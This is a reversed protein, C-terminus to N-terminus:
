KGPAQIAGVTMRRTLSRGLFDIPGPDVGLARLDVAGGVLASGAGPLYDVARDTGLAAPARIFGPDISLGSDTGDV